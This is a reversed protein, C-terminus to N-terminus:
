GSQLFTEVADHLASAMLEHGAANPHFSHVVPNLVAGNIAFNDACVGRQAFDGDVPVFFIDKGTAAASASDVSGLVAVSLGLAALIVCLLVRRVLRPIISRAPREPASSPAHRHPQNM